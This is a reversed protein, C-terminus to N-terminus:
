GRGPRILGNGTSPDLFLRRNSLSSGFNFLGALDFPQSSSGALVQDASGAISPLQWNYEVLNIVSAQDTLAHDIHNVRAFPSIVLLPQRPGFGCRGQQGALPAV